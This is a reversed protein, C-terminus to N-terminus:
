KKPEEYKELLEGLFCGGQHGKKARAGASCDKEGKSGRKCETCDVYLMGRSDVESYKIKM